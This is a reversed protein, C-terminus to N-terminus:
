GPPMRPNLPPEPTAGAPVAFPVVAVGVKYVVLQRVPRDGLRAPAYHLEPLSARVAAEFEADTSSRSRVTSLELRGVTDVVFELEVRYCAGRTPDQPRPTFNVQPEPGRQEAKHDVECDRYVPGQRLWLSDPESGSCRGKKKQAHGVGVVAVLLVVVLSIRM